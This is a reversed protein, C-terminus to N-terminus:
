VLFVQHLACLLSSAVQLGVTVHVTSVMHGLSHVLMMMM